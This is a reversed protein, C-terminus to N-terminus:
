QQVVNEVLDIIELVRDEDLHLMKNLNSVIEKFTEEMEKIKEDKEKNLKLLDERELYEEVIEYKDFDNETKGGKIYWTSQLEEDMRVWAYEDGYENKDRGLIKYLNGVILDCNPHTEGGIYRVISGKAPIRQRKKM